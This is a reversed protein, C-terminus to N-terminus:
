TYLGRACFIINHGEIDEIDPIRSLRDLLTECNDPGTYNNTGFKSWDSLDQILMGKEIVGPYLRPNKFYERLRIIHETRINLGMSKGSVVADEGCQAVLGIIDSVQDELVQYLLIHGGMTDRIINDHDRIYDILASTRRRRDHYVNLDTKSSFPELKVKKVRNLWM